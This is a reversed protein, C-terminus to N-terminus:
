LLEIFVRMGFVGREDEQEPDCHHVLIMGTLMMWSAGALVTMYDQGVFADSDEVNIAAFVCSGSHRLPHCALLYKQKQVTSFDATNKIVDRVEELAATPAAIDAPWHDLTCPAAIEQRLPSRWHESGHLCGM